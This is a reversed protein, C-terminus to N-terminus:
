ISRLRPTGPTDSASGLMALAEARARRYSEWREVKTALDTAMTAEIVSVRMHEVLDGIRARDAQGALMAATSPTTPTPPQPTRPADPAMPGLPDEFRVAAAMTGSM